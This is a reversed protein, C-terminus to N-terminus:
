AGDETCWVQFEEGCLVRVGAELHRRCNQRQAPTYVTFAKRLVSLAEPETM